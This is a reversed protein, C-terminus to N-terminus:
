PCLDLLKSTDFPTRSGEVPSSEGPQHETEIVHARRRSADASSLEPM